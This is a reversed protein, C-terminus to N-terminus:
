SGYWELNNPLAHSSFELHIIRRHSATASPSSSHLLLPRIMLVGGKSVPSSVPTVEEKLQRIRETNLRGCKHSSPVVRLEGNAKNTEDLHIRITLIGELVAVPPQVHTVGAKVSWSHFGETEIKECVAITLDQHWTVKWNARSTKDFFIGRVVVADKGVIPNVLKRIEDSNAFEKIAPVVNLLNRIGFTAESRRRVAADISVSALEKCLHAVTGEDVVGNVVAFGHEDLMEPFNM